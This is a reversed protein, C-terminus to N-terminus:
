SEKYDPIRALTVDLQSLVPVMREDFIVHNLNINQILGWYRLSKGLHVDVPRGILFGIDSTKGRFRTDFKIGLMTSLLFEVDYMTGYNYIRKQADSSPKTPYYPNNTGTRGSKLKGDTGYYQMDFMRNLTLSFGITSMTQGGILNYKELGSTLMTIDIDPMGSWAQSITTPNYHFQFAYRKASDKVEGAIEDYSLTEDYKGTYLWIMGKNSKSNKWLETGASVAGPRNGGTLMNALSAFGADSSFYAENVMGVNYEIPLSSYNTGNRTGGGGGGDGGGNTDPLPTGSAKLFAKAADLTNQLEKKLSPILDIRKQMDFTKLQNWWYSASTQTLGISYKKSPIDVRLRVGVYGDLYTNFSTAPIQKGNPFFTNLYEKSNVVVQKTYADSTFWRIRGDSTRWVYAIYSTGSVKLATSKYHSLLADSQRIIEPYDTVVKKAADITAFSSNPHDATM